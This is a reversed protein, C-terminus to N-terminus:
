GTYRLLLLTMDDAQEAGEAFKKVGDLISSQLDKLSGADHNRVIDILRDMGFDVVPGLAQLESYTMSTAFSATSVAGVVLGMCIATLIRDRM